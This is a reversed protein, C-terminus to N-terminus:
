AILLDSIVIKYRKSLILSFLRLAYDGLPERNYGIRNELLDMWISTDIYYKIM